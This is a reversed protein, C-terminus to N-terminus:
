ELEFLDYVVDVYLSHKPRMDITEILLIGSKEQVAGRTVFCLADFLLQTLVSGNALKNRWSQSTKELRCVYPPKMRKPVFVFSSPAVPKDGFWLRPCPMPVLLRWSIDFYAHSLNNYLSYM